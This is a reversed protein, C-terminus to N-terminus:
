AKNLYERQFICMRLVDHYSGNVFFEEKLEAEVAFGLKKYIHIAKENQKDVILYLKHLNLTAFAYNMALKAAHIAYGKGQHDPSIIIEFEANRHVHYDIYAIDVLGIKEKGKGEVIFRRIHHDQAQKEYMEKLRAFSYYPEEFWYSMIKPDNALKHIFPLDEEELVRLQLHKKM